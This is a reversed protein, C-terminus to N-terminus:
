RSRRILESSKRRFETAVFADYGAAELSRLQPAREVAIISRAATLASSLAFFVGQGSRPDLIAAADGVIRYAAGGAPRVLRWSVDFGRAGANDDAPATAAQTWALSGDDLPARWVWHSGSSRFTPLACVPRGTPAGAQIVGRWALMPAGCMTVSLGLMRRLVGGRGSADVLWRARHRMTATQVVVGHTACSVDTVRERHLTVDKDTADALLVCDFPARDIHWGTGHFRRVVGDSVIGEFRGVIADAFRDRELGAAELLSPVLPPVSEIAGRQNALRVPALMTVTLGARRLLLAAMCGAPGAGLVLADCSAESMPHRKDCKGGSGPATPKPQRTTGHM